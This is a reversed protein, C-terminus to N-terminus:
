EESNLMKNIMDKSKLWEDYLHKYTKRGLDTIHYYKRRANNPENGWYSVICGGDELRKFTTYLTAENLEYMNDTCNKITKNIAYGYNDGKILQALIIADTHGRIIDSTVSM